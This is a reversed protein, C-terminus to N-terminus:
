REWLLTTERQNTIGVAAIETGAVGAQRLAEALSTNVSNWIEDPDHEVWGPEPYHQPFEATHRGLTRGDTGMVLVTSGTTGQDIALLHKAM